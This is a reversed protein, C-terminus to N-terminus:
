GARAAARAARAGGAAAARDRGAAEARPGTVVVHWRRQARGAVQRGLLDGHEDAQAEVVVGVALAHAPRHAHERREGVRGAAAVGGGVVARRRARGEVVAGDVGPCGRAPLGGVGGAELGAVVGHVVIVAGRDVAAHA